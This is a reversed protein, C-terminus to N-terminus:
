KIGYVEKIEDYFIKIAENCIEKSIFYIKGIDFYKKEWELQMGKESSYIIFWKTNLKDIKDGGNEMSFRWLRRNLIEEKARQEMISKDTCYNAVKFMDESYASNVDASKCIEGYCDICYYLENKDVRKFPNVREKRTVETKLEKIQNELEEIKHLMEEKNM